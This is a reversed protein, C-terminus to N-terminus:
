RAPRDGRPVRFKFNHIALKFNRCEGKQNQRSQTAGLLPVGYDSPQEIRSTKTNFKYEREWPAM